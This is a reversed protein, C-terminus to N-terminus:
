LCDHNWDEDFFFESSPASDDSDVSLRQRKLPLPSCFSMKDYQDFEPEQYQSKFLDDINLQVQM